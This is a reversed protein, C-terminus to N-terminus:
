SIIKSKNQLELSAHVFALDSIGPNFILVWFKRMDGLDQDDEVLSSSQLLTQTRPKLHEEDSGIFLRHM